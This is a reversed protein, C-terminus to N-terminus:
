KSYLSGKAPESIEEVLVVTGNLLYYTCTMSAFDAVWTAVGTRACDSCFEAFSTAGKQNAVLQTRFGAADGERAIVRITPSAASSIPLGESGQFETHGDAVFHTYRLVGLAKLEAVYQPYEAGSKTRSHAAHIQELTFM